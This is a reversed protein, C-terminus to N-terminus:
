LMKTIAIVDKNGSVYRKSDTVSGERTLPETVESADDTRKKNEQSQTM